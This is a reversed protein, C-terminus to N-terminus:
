GGGDELPSGSVSIGPTSADRSTSPAAAVNPSGAGREMGSEVEASAGASSAAAGSCVVWHRNVVPKNSRGETRSGVARCRAPSRHRPPGAAEIGLRRYRVAIMTASGPRAGAGEVIECTPPSEEAVGCTSLLGDEPRAIVGTLFFTVPRNLVMQMRTIPPLDLDIWRRWSNGARLIAARSPSVSYASVGAVCTATRAFRRWGIRPAVPPSM